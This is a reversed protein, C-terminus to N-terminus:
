RKKRVRMAIEGLDPCLNALFRAITTRISKRSSFNLQLLVSSLDPDVLDTIFVLRHLSSLLLSLLFFFSFLYCLLLLKLFTLFFFFFSLPPFILPCFFLLYGPLSIPLSFKFFKFFFFFFFFRSLSVCM